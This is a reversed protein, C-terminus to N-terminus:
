LKAVLLKHGIDQVNGASNTLVVVGRNTGKVFGIFSAYGPTNGGHWIVTGNNSHFWGLGIVRNRKRAYLKHLKSM